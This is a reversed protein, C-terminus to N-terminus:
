AQRGVDWMQENTRPAEGRALDPAHVTRFVTVVEEALSVLQAMGAYLQHMAEGVAPDIPYEGSQLRMTYTRLALAVNAPIEPIQDIERAVTWMDEPAHGAAAGNLEATAAALPNNSMSRTRRHIPTTYPRRSPAPGTSATSQATAHDDFATSPDRFVRIRLGCMCTIWIEIDDAPITVTHQGKCRPCEIAQTLPQDGEGGTNTESATEPAAKRTKVRDVVWSVLALLGATLQADWGGLVAAARRRAVRLGGGQRLAKWASSYRHGSRRDVAGGLRRVQRAVARGGKRALRGAHGFAKGAKGKTVTNAWAAAKRTRQAAGGGFQRARSGFARGAGGTRGGAGTGKAAPRGSRGGRGAGGGGPTGSRNASRGLGGLLGGGGRGGKGFLGGAGGGSRGGGTSRGSSFLGGAGGGTRRTSGTTTVTRASEKRGGGGSGHRHSNGRHPHARQYRHRLYAVTGSGALVAGGILGPLGLMQYIAGLVVASGSLGGAALHAAPIGEPRETADPETTSPAAPAPAPSEAPAAPVDVVDVVEPAENM